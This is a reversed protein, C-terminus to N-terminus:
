RGRVKYKKPEQIFMEVTWFMEDFGRDEDSQSRPTGSDVPKSAILADVDLTTKLAAKEEELKHTRKEALKLGAEKIRDLRNADANDLAVFVPMSAAMLIGLVVTPVSEHVCGAIVVGVGIGIFIALLGVSGWDINQWWTKFRQIMKRM